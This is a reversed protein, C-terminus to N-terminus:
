REVIMLKRGKERTFKADDCNAVVQINAFSLVIAGSVRIQRMGLALLALTVLVITQLPLFNVFGHSDFFLLFYRLTSAPVTALHAM